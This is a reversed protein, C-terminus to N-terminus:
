LAAGEQKVSHLLTALGADQTLCVVIPIHYPRVRHYLGLAWSLGLTDEDTCVYIATVQCRGEADFLCAVRHFEPVSVELPHAILECNRALAPHRLQLLEKIQIADKDILTVQLGRADASDAPAPQQPSPLREHWRRALQVVLSQGLWGGGVVLVHPHARAATEKGVSIGKLDRSVTDLLPPPMDRM